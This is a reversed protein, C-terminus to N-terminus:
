LVVWLFVAIFAAIGGLMVFLYGNLSGTHAMRLGKSSVLVINQILTDYLWNNARDIWYLLKSWGFQIKMGVDYPDFYRKEAGSYVASLIPAKRIHDSAHLGSKGMIVGLIHNILGLALVGVSIWTLMSGTVKAFTFHEYLHGHGLMAPPLVPEILHKMPVSNMVGFFVCGAALVLMPILMVLPSEKVKVPEKPKDFYAAHGLKLFSAFTLVAGVEAAIYFILLWNNNAHKAFEFAGEFILEKSFFGNFPPVGSISLAAVAFCIFTVPMSRFLGGLKNLDTTGTRHEVSGGTLFLCSKYMSHNIMHFIGGAIGAPIGTGIGLIMYGVQSIAHYSLLRKYDKQILAMAVAFVITVAGITLLVIQMAFTMKFFDLTIRALLYIGLLKELAAPIYAMVPLPADVAADPIWTHFPMAGAKATAGIMMLIFAAAIAPTNMTLSIKDMTLTGAAASAIAIGLILALDSIGVIILSKAATLFSRESGIAIMGYLTLLLGGWFVLLLMLNNSLIAGYSMAATLLFYPYYLRQHSRKRMFAASYLAILISFGSAALLLFKSFHYLRFDIDAGFPLWKHFIRVEGPVAFLTIAAYLGFTVAILTIAERVFKVREPFLIAIIGAAAPVVISLIILMENTM